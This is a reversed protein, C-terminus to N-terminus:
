GSVKSTDPHRHDTRWIMVRGDELRKQGIASCLLSDSMARRYSKRVSELHKVEDQGSPPASLKYQDLVTREDVARFNMDRAIHVWLVASPPSELLAADIARMLFANRKNQKAPGKGGRLLSSAVDWKVVVGDQRRGEEDLPMRVDALSFTIRKNAVGGRLKKITMATNSCIGDDNVTGTVQLVVDASAEKASSGRTGKAADKGLHDTVVVACDYKAALAHLMNFIKQNSGAANHQDDNLDAAATMTDIAVLGLGPYGQGCLQRQLGNLRDIKGCYAVFADAADLRPIQETWSIIQSYDFPERHQAQWPKIKAHDLVNWRPRVDDQGEAAFMLSGCRRMVQYGAFPEGFACSYMLDNVIHTKGVSSWGSLIVVARRPIMEEVLWERTSLGRKHRQAVSYFELERDLHFVRGREREAFGEDDHEPM